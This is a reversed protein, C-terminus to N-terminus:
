ANKGETLSIKAANNKEINVEYIFFSSSLGRKFNM